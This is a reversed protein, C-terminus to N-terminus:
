DEAHMDRRHYCYGCNFPDADYPHFRTCICREVTCRGPGAAPPVQTGLLLWLWLSATMTATM